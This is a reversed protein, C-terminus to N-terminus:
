ELDELLEESYERLDSIFSNRFHQIYELDKPDRQNLYRIARLNCEIFASNMLNSMKEIEYDSIEVNPSHFLIRTLHANLMHVGIIDCEEWDVSKYFASILLDQYESIDEKLEFLDSSSIIAGGFDEFTELARVHLRERQAKSKIKDIVDYFEDVEGLRLADECLNMYKQDTM